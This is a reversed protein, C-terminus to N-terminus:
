LSAFRFRMEHLRATCLHFDFHIQKAAGADGDKAGNATKLCLVCCSLPASSALEGCCRLSLRLSAETSAFLDGVFFTAEECFRVGSAPSLRLKRPSELECYRSSETEVAFLSASRSELWAPTM